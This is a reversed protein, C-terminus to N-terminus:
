RLHSACHPTDAINYRGSKKWLQNGQQLENKMRSELVAVREEVLQEIFPNARLAEISQKMPKVELQREPVPPQQGQVQTCGIPQEGIGQIRVPNGFQDTHMLINQNFDHSPQKNVTSIDNNTEQLNSMGSEWVQSTMLSPVPRTITSTVRSFSSSATVRMPTPPYFEQTLPTVGLETDRKQKKARTHTTSAKLTM